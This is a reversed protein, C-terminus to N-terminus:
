LRDLASKLSQTLPAIKGNVFTVPGYSAYFGISENNTLYVAKNKGDNIYISDKRDLLPMLIPYREKYYTKVEKQVNDSDAYDVAVGVLKDNNFAYIFKNVNASGGVYVLVNESEQALLKTTREKMTDKNLGFEFEPEEFITSYPSVTISSSFEKGNSTAKIRTSGIKRAKFMGGASIKGVTSDSSTWNYLSSLNESGRRIEFQHTQDYKLNISARDITTEPEADKSCATFFLIGTFLLCIYKMLM